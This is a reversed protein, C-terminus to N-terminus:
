QRIRMKSKIKNVIMEGKLINITHQLYKKLSKRLLFFGTEVEDMPMKMLEEDDIKDLCITKIILPFNGFDNKSLQESVKLFTIYSDYNPEEVKTTWKYKTRKLPEPKNSMFALKKNIAKITELPFKQIIEEPLNIFIAAIKISNELIMIADADKDYNLDEIKLIKNVYTDLTIEKWSSPVMRLIEDHTYQKIM